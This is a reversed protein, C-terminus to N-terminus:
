LMVGIGILVFADSAAILQKRASWPPSATATPSIIAVFV